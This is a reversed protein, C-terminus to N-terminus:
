FVHQNEYHESYYSEPSRPPNRGFFNAIRSRPRDENATGTRFASSRATPGRSLPASGSADAAPFYEEPEQGMSSAGRYRLRQDGVPPELYEDGDITWSFPALKM